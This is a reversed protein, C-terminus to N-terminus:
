SPIEADDSIVTSLLFVTMLVTLKQPQLRGGAFTGTRVPSKKYAREIGQRVAAFSRSCNRVASHSANKFVTRVSRNSSTKANRGINDVIEAVSAPERLAGEM